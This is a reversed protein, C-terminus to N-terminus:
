EQITLTKKSCGQDVDNLIKHSPHIGKKPLGSFPEACFHRKKQEGPEMSMSDLVMLAGVNSVFHEQGRLGM